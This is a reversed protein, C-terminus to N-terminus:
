GVTGNDRPVVAPGSPLRAEDFRTSTVYVAFLVLVFTLAQVGSIRAAIQSVWAASFMLLIFWRFAPQHRVNSAAGLEHAILIFSLVVLIGDYVPVYANLLLTWVVTLAWVKVPFRAGPQGHIWWIRILSPLVLLAALGLGVLGLTYDGTLLTTAGRIDVYKWGRLVGTSGAYARGVYATTRIYDGVVLPGMALVTFALLLVGGAGFGALMRWRRSFLLMPLFLVLLTPKYMCLSLCLGALFPRGRQEQYIALALCLFGVSSVQGGALTEVLFPEFALALAFATKKEAQSILGSLRFMVLLGTVYFGFSIASWTAYACPYTLLAFPRFIVAFFPPYLFPLTRGHEIARVELELRNQLELDYLASVPYHNLLWGSMFFQLFDGGLGPFGLAPALDHELSLVLGLVLPVICIFFACIVRIERPKFRPARLEDVWRRLSVGRVARIAAWLRTM